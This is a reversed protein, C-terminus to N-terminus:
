WFWVSVGPIANKPGDSRISLAARSNIGQQGVELLEAVNGLISVLSEGTPYDASQFLLESTVSTYRDFSALQSATAGIQIAHRNAYRQPMFVGNTHFVSTGPVAFAPSSCALFIGAAIALKM